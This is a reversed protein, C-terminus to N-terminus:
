EVGLAKRVKAALDPNRNLREILLNLERQDIEATTCNRCQFVWDLEPLSHIMSAGDLATGTAGCRHCADKITARTVEAWMVDAQYGYPNVTSM